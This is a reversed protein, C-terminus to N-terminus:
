SVSPSPPLRQGKLSRSNSLLIGLSVYSRISLLISAMKSWSRGRAIQGAAQKSWFFNIRENWKLCALSVTKPTPHLPPGGGLHQSAILFQHAPSEWGKAMKGMRWARWGLYKEKKRWIRKVDPRKILPDEEYKEADKWIICGFWDSWEQRATCFIAVAPCLHFM